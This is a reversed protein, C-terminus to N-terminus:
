TNEEWCLEIGLLYSCDDEASDVWHPDKKPLGEVTLLLGEGIALRAVIAGEM